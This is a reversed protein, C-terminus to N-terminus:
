RPRHSSVTTKSRRSSRSQTGHAPKVAAAITGPGSGIPITAESNHSDPGYIDVYVDGSHIGSPVTVNLQYLGASITTMGAFGVNAPQGDISVAITNTAITYPSVSSGPAGDPNPPTVDGLGTVYIAITEGPVAPSDSTIATYDSHTAVAHGLGNGSTFVGPATVDMYVTVTNSPVGNNIVQIQALTLETAFPVVVSVQNPSVSYIPAPRNNIMVQVGDFTTDLPVDADSLTDPALNSGYLTILEGRAIGSTFPASSAANLVGTPNLYVGPQNFTPAQLGINIGLYPALGFGVRIAGGAGVMYKMLSYSDTYSGDSNQVYNDDYTYDSTGSFYSKLRQHGIIAGANANLAGYYSQTDGYGLNFTSSDALMGAQYYLGSYNTGGSPVRVGAFMDIGNASGGFIFNGDPSIYFLKNGAILGSSSGGLALTGVGNSISYRVGSLSQTMATPGNGAVFGTVNVTGINGQGDANIQFFTDLSDQVLGDADMSAVWYTGQLASTTAAPFASQAAIFLDNYGLQNETSSGIFVGKSVLGYISDGQSVPSSISGLGSASISYTGTTSFQQITGAGADLYTGSLSYGGNGDFNFAGYAVVAESLDGYQDYGPVYIVHRFNYQGQLLGNGSNDWVLNQASVQWGAALALSLFVKSFRGNRLTM